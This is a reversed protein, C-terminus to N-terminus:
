YLAVVYMKHLFISIIGFDDKFIIGMNGNSVGENIGLVINPASPSFRCCFKKIHDGRDTKKKTKAIM